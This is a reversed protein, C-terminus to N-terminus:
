PQPVAKVVIQLTVEDKILGNEAPVQFKVGFEERKIDTPESSISVQDPTVSVNAKIQVPKTVGKLTLNGDLLTNYDGEALPTVKTIQYTATPYKDVEFFDASKLHGELKQKQELDSALDENDLSHMNAVFVGSELLSDKVTLNGSEFRIKGFHSTNESKFVKYGKWEIASSLTDVVYAKGEATTSVENATSEVKPEKQCATFALSFCLAAASWNVIKKKMSNPIQYYALIAFTNPNWLFM